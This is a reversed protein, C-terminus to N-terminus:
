GDLKETWCGMQMDNLMEREILQITGHIQVNWEAVIM